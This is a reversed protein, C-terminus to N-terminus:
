KEKSKDVIRQMLLTSIGSLMAVAEEAMLEIIHVVFKKKSKRKRKRKKALCIRYLDCKPQPKKVLGFCFYGNLFSIREKQSCNSCKFHRKSKM